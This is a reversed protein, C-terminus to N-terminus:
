CNLQDLYTQKQMAVTVFKQLQINRQHLIVQCMFVQKNM